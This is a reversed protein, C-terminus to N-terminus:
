GNGSAKKILEYGVWGIGIVGAIILGWMLFKFFLIFPWLAMYIYLWQDNWDFPHFIMFVLMGIAVYIFASLLQGM